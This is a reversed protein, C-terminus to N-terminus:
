NKELSICLLSNLLWESLFNECKTPLKGTSIAKVPAQKLRAYDLNSWYILKTFQQIRASILLM